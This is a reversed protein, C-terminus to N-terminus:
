PLMAKVYPHELHKRNVKVVLRIYTRVGREKPGLYANLIDKPIICELDLGSSVLEDDRMDDSVIWITGTELVPKAPKHKRSPKRKM